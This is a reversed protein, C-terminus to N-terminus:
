FSQQFISHGIVVLNLTRRSRNYKNENFSLSNTCRLTCKQISTNILGKAVALLSYLITSSKFRDFLVLCATVLFCKNLIKQYNQLRLKFIHKQTVKLNNFMHSHTYPCYQRMLERFLSVKHYPKINTKRVNYSACLRNLQTAVSTTELM